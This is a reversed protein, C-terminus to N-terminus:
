DFALFISFFVIALGGMKDQRRETMLSFLLDEYKEDKQGKKKTRM